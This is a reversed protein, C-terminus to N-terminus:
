RAGGYIQLLRNNGNALQLLRNSFNQSRNYNTEDVSQKEKLRTARKMERWQELELGYKQMDREREDEWRRRDEAFVRDLNAQQQKALRENQEYTQYAMIGQGVLGLLDLGLGVGSPILSTATSAIKGATSSGATVM